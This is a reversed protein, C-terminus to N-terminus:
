QNVASNAVESEEVQEQADEAPTEQIEGPEKEYEAVDRLTPLEALSNMGFLKLFEETTGYLAPQGVSQQHGVIKVLSRELLTKLTPSVDVGRIKEIDSRVVPQRYAIISLTELAAASLRRPKDAKLERLYPAFVAKTRFQYGEAVQVLEFGSNAGSYREKIRALAAGVEEEKLTGASVIQSISLPEGSAFVLAEAIAEVMEPDKDESEDLQGGGELSDESSETFDELSVEKEGVADQSAIGEEQEQEVLSARSYTEDQVPTTENEAALEEPRKPAPESDINELGSDPNM